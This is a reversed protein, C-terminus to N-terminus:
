IENSSPTFIAVELPEERHQLVDNLVSFYM